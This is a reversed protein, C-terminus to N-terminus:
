SPKRKRRILGQIYLSTFESDLIRSGLGGQQEGRDGVVDDAAPHITFRRLHTHGAEEGPRVTSSDCDM